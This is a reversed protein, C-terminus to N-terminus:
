SFTFTSHVNYYGNPVIITTVDGAPGAIGCDASNGINMPVGTFSPDSSSAQHPITMPAAATSGDAYECTVLQPTGGGDGDGDKTVVLRPYVTHDAPGLVAASVSIACPAKATSCTFRFVGGTANNGVPSGLAVAYQAWMTAAQGGRSVLVKAVGYSLSAASGQPGQVGQPGPVGAGLV